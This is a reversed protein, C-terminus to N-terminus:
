NNNYEAFTRRKLPETLVARERVKEMESEIKGQERILEWDSKVKRLYDVEAELTEIEPKLNEIQRVVNDAAEEDGAARLAKEKAMAKEYEDFLKNYEEMKKQFGVEAARIERDATWSTYDQAASTCSVAWEALLVAAVAKM